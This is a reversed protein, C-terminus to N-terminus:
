PRRRSVPGRVWPAIWSCDSPASVKKRSMTSSGIELGASPPAGCRRHESLQTRFTSLKTRHTSYQVSAIDPQADVQPLPPTPPLEIREPRKPLEPKNAM